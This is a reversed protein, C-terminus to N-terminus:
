NSEERLTSMLRCQLGRGSWVFFSEKKGSSSSLVILETGYFYIPSKKKENM